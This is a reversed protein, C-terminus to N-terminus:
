ESSGPQLQELSRLVYESSAVDFFLDFGHMQARDSRVLICDMQAVRTQAVSLVPFRDKHLDVPCTKALFDSVGNGGIYFWAWVEDRWANFGKPRGADEEWQTRLDALSTSQSDPRSLIVLDDAGLRVIDFNRSSRAMTNIRAPLEVTKSALWDSAGRGKIGFRDYATLDFLLIEKGALDYPTLGRGQGESNGAFPDSLSAGAYTQGLPTRRRSTPPLM